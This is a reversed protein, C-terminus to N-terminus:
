IHILSLELTRGEAGQETIVLFGPVHSRWNPDTSTLLLRYVQPRATVPLHRPQWPQPLELCTRLLQAHAASLTQDTTRLRIEADLQDRFLVALSVARTLGKSNRELWYAAQSAHLQQRITQCFSGIRSSFDPPLSLAPYDVHRIRSGAPLRFTGGDFLHFGVLQLLHHTGFFLTRASISLGPFLQALTLDISHEVGHIPPLLADLQNDLTHFHPQTTM